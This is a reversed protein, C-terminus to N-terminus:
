SVMQRALAATITVLRRGQYRAADLTARDPQDAAGVTCSTGYPNGGAAYVSADTYGPPVIVMGWHYMTTYLALLTSEQGGHQVQSSTFATVTKDALEGAILLAPAARDWETKVQM